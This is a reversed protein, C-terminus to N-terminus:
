AAPKIVRYRAQVVEYAGYAILGIAVAALLWKGFPQSGIVDLAEGTDAAKNANHALGARALFGGIVAFVVGRAGIGVRCVKILWSGAERSLRSLNLQKSLKAIWARYIQWLGYGAIGVGIAVVIWEGFPAELARATWTETADGSGSKGNGMAVRVAQVGLAAHFVGRAVHSARIALGKAGHGRREPDLLAEALRWAAYGFLGAAIAVLLAVGFEQKVLTSLAGRSGTTEGGGDGLAARLALVGIVGYLVAKAAYGVRALREIWPAVPAIAERAPATLSEASRDYTPASM